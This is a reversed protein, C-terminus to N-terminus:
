LKKPRASKPQGVSLSNMAIATTTHAGRLDALNGNIEEGRHKNQQTFQHTQYRLFESCSTCKFQEKGLVQGCLLM